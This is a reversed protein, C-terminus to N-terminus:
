LGIETLFDLIGLFSTLFKNGFFLLYEIIDSYLAKKLLCGEVVIM